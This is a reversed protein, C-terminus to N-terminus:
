GMAGRKFRSLGTIETATAIEVSVWGIGGLLADNRNVHSVDFTSTTPISFTTSTTTFTASVYAGTAITVDDRTAGAPKRRSLTIRCSASAGTTSRIRPAMSLLRTLGAPFGGRGVFYPFCEVLQRTGAGTFDRVETYQTPTQPSTKYLSLSNLLREADREYGVDFPIGDGYADTAYRAPPEQGTSATATTSQSSGFSGFIYAQIANAVLGDADDAQYAKTRQTTTATTYDDYIVRYRVAGTTVFGALGTTLTITNGTQSAVTDAWQQASGAVSPDIEIVLVKDGAVFRSADNVESSESHEHAYCTLVLGTLGANAATDDVQACPVYVPITKQPSVMISVEGLAPRAKGPGDRGSEPGGPDFNLGVVLGPQGSMGGSGLLNSYRKGTAPDRIYKDTLTLVTGPTLTELTNLDVSRKIVQWPRSTYRFFGSFQEVLDDIASGFAGARRFTNRAKIELKREGHEDVSPGDILTIHDKYEGTADINYYIEIINKFDDDELLSAFDPDSVDLPTAKSTEDLAKTAYTSTPSSWTKINLRGGGWTFFCRRLLFDAQFLKVFSVSGDILACCTADSYSLNEVEAIFDATLASWPVGCSVNEDFADYTAHNFGSTGTSLLMKLLITKFKDEYLLVQAVEIVADEDDYTVHLADLFDQTQDPFFAGLGSEDVLFSTDSVRKARVYGLDGVRLIGDYQVNPDQLGAPLEALQTVWAGQPESLTVQQPTGFAGGNLSTRRPSEPSTHAFSAQISTAAIEGSPWGLFRLRQPISCTISIRRQQSGATSDTVAVRGRFQGGTDFVGQYSMNFLIRSAAREGQLWTSIEQGLDIASYVGEEIQNAGPVGAVVVLDTGEAETDATNSNRSTLVSFTTGASLWFGEGLTAKFPYRNIQTEYIKRRIDTAEFITAGDADAVSVIQGVFLRHASSLDSEVTDITSGSVRHVWIEVHRGIWTRPESTISPSVGGADIMAASITKHNRGFRAVSSTHVGSYKGRTSVTFTDAGTDRASYTITEPGMYVTGSASFDDARLATITTDNCDLNVALTTETGGLRKFVTEGVVDSIGDLPGGSSARTAPVVSFRVDIPETFPEFPSIEQDLELFVTLGGVVEGFDDAYSPTSSNAYADLVLTPDDNTLVYPFGEIIASYVLRVGSRGQIATLTAGAM